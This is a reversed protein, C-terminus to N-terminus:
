EEAPRPVLYPSRKIGLNKLRYELVRSTTRLIRAADAVTGNSKDMADQILRREFDQVVSKYDLEECGEGRLGLFEQPLGSAAIQRDKNHLVLVREIVNRLERVNGPWAYERFRQMVISEFDVAEAHLSPRLQQLFHYALLPIDDPRDRLPPITITHLSLAEILEALVAGSEIAEAPPTEMTAIIRTSSPVVQSSGGRQYEGNRVVRVVARQLAHPLRNVGELFLTSERALEIAGRRAHGGVNSWTGFIEAELFNPPLDPCIVGVFPEEARRSWAHIHRAIYEKGTGREGVLLVHADAALKAYELTRRFAASQGVPSTVPFERTIEKALVERQRPAESATISQQVLNRLEQVDWPKRVFGVAGLALVEKALTDSSSATIVIVPLDPHIERVERLFALGSMRSMVLDLIVLDSRERGLCALGEIANGATVVECLGRFVERLAERTALEDDIILLRNM